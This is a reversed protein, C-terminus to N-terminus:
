SENVTQEYHDIFDYITTTKFVLSLYTMQLCIGITVMLISKMHERPTSADHVLYLCLLIIALACQTMQSLQKRHFPRENAVLKISALNGKVSEFIKM